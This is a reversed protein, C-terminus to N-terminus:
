RLGGKPRQRSPLKFRAEFEDQHRVLLGAEHPLAGESLPDFGEYAGVLTEDPLGVIVETKFGPKDVFILMMNKPSGCATFQQEFQDQFSFFPSLGRKKRSACVVRCQWFM